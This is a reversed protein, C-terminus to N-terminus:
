KRQVSMTEGKGRSPDYGELLGLTKVSSIAEEKGKKELVRLNSSGDRHVGWLLAGKFVLLNQNDRLLAGM